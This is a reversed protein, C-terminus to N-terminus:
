AALTNIEEQTLAQDFFILEDVQVSAYDWNRNTYRRGVVIRGDGASRSLSLLTTESAVENGNHYIRIEEDDNPGVYNLM